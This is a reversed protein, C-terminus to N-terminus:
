KQEKRWRSKGQYSLSSNESFEMKFEKCREELSYYEGDGIGFLFLVFIDYIIIGMGMTEGRM